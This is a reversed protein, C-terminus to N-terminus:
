FKVVYSIKSKEQIKIKPMRPIKLALLHLMVVKNRCNLNGSLVVRNYQVGIIKSPSQIQVRTIGRM